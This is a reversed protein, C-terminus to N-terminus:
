GNWGGQDTPVLYSSLDEAQVQPLEEALPEYAQLLGATSDEEEPSFAESGQSVAAPLPATTPGRGVWTVALAAALLLAAAASLWARGYRRSRGVRAAVQAELRATPGADPAARALSAEVRRLEELESACRRCSRLHDLAESPLPGVSLAYALTDDCTM